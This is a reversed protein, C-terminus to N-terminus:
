KSRPARLVHTTAMQELEKNSRRRGRTAWEELDKKVFFLKGGQKSYPIEGDSVKRYMTQESYDLFRAAERLSLIPKAGILAISQLEDIKRAITELTLAEQAM